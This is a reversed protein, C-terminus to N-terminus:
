DRLAAYTSAYGMLTVSERRSVQRLQALIEEVGADDLRGFDILTQNQLFQRLPSKSIQKVVNRIYSLNSGLRYGLRSGYYIVEARVQRKKGADQYSIFPTGTSGSTSMQYLAERPFADSFFAEGGDRITNKDVVPFDSLADPCDRYFPVHERVHDRLALWAQRQHEALWPDDFCVADAHAIQEFARHVPGGRLADLTWFLGARIPRLLSM